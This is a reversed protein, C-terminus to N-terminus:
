KPFLSIKGEDIPFSFVENDKLDLEKLPMGDRLRLGPRGIHLLNASAPMEILDVPSGYGDVIVGAADTKLILVNRVVVLPYIASDPSEYTELKGDFLDRDESHEPYFLDEVVVDAIFQYYIFDGAVPELLNLLSQGKKNLEADYREANDLLRYNFDANVVKKVLNYRVEQFRISEAYPWFHDDSVFVMGGEARLSKDYLNRLNLDELSFRRKFAMGKTRVRFLSESLPLDGGTYPFLFGDTIVRSDMLKLVLMQQKGMTAPCYSQLTDDISASVLDGIFYHLTYESEKAGFLDQADTEAANLLTKDSFYDQLRRYDFDAKKVTKVLRYGSSGLPGVQGYLFPSFLLALYLFIFKIKM